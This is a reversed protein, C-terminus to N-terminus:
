TRRHQDADPCTSFHSVYLKEGAAPATVFRAIPTEHDDCEDLDRGGHGELRFGRATVVPDADVPMRKGNTTETWIIPWECSRCYALTV